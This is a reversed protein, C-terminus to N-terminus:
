GKRSYTNTKGETKEVDNKWLRTIAYQLMGKTFGEPLDKEVADFIEGITAPADMAGLVIPKAEAYLADKAQKAEAGRNIEKEFEALIEADDFGNTTLFSYVTEYTTKKMTTIREPKTLNEKRQETLITGCKTATTLPNKLSHKFFKKLHQLQVEGTGTWGGSYLVENM